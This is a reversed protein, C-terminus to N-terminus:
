VGTIKSSCLLYPWFNYRGLADNQDYGENFVDLREKKSVAYFGFKDGSIWLRNKYYQVQVMVGLCIHSNCSLQSLM